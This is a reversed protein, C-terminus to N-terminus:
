SFFEEVDRMVKDNLKGDKINFTAEYKTKSMFKEVSKKVSKKQETDSSDVTIQIGLEPSYFQDLNEPTFIPQQTSPNQFNFDLQKKKELYSAKAPHAKLSAVFDEPDMDESADMKEKKKKKKALQAKKEEPIEM